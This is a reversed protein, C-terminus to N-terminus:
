FRHYGKMTPEIFAEWASQSQSYRMKACNVSFQTLSPNYLLIIAKIHSLDHGIKNASM